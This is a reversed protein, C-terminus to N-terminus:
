RPEAETVLRQIEERVLRELINPFHDKLWARLLPRVAERVIEELNRGPAGLPGPEARQEGPVAGLQGFAAVAAESAAASLLKDRPDETKPRVGSNGESPKPENPEHPAPAVTANVPQTNPGEDLKRVTGDAEIADTLELIASNERPPAAIPRPPRNDKAIIRGISAIIEQMSSEPAAPNINPGSPSTKDDSM